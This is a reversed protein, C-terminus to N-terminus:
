WGGGLAKYLALLNQRITRDSQELADESSNLLRQATLLNLSDTEGQVYLTNALDVARRNADVADVLAERRVQERDYAVLANEVDSLATLVTSKYAALIEEVRARQVAINSRVQGATFLPWTISPGISWFNNALNTLSSPRVGATGFSGTLSFRPYLDSTAVGLRATAAHLDAAIRRVDPRRLLLDSPLGAPVELPVRPYDGPTSLEALLAGPERGLLVSLAYIAQRQSAELQPIQSLTTAVQAESQAVDLKGVFGAAGLRRTVDLTSRQLALNRNAIDIQHQFGRVDMYTLAVEAIVSILVDHQDEVASTIDADAAEVGRRNGGFVDIEWSADLGAQYLDSQRSGGGGIGNNLDGSGSGARRYSGSADVRPWLVSAAVGRAARAQRLRAESQKLDLNSEIARDILSDLAPDRFATWWRSLDTPQTTAASPKTTQQTTADAPAVAASPQTTPGAWTAPMEVAPPAYNPGVMCGALLLSATIGVTIFRAM